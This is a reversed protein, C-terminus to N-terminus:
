ALHIAGRATSPDDILSLRGDMVQAGFRGYYATSAAHFAGTSLSSKAKGYMPKSTTPPIPISGIAGVM